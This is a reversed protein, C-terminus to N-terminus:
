KTKKYKKKQKLIENALVERQKRLIDPSKTWNQLNKAVPSILEAIRSEINKENNQKMLKRLLNFYEVDENGDRILELRISSVPGNIGVKNGPYTLFGDGNANPFMEAKEWVTIANQYKGNRYESYVNVCWYLVGEINHKAQLWSLVRHSIGVDDILYTPYPAQPNVCTYWWIRDGAKIREEYVDWDIKDLLPVWIDVAGYMSKHPEITMLFPIDKGIKDTTLGLDRVFDYKNPTPEDNCYIYGKRMWGKKRLHEAIIKLKPSDIRGWPNPIRFSNVRPDDLYKNAEHSTIEVPINGPMLRREVMFWYYKEYMAKAEPSNPKLNFAKNLFNPWIAFASMFSPTEPLEFDYINLEIDIETKEINDGTIAITGNYKGPVSDKNSTVQLWIAQTADVPIDFKKQLPPLADPMLGPATDKAVTNKAVLTYHVQLLQSKLDDRGGYANRFGSFKVSINNIAKDQATILIQTAETENKAMSISARQKKASFSLPAKQYRRIKNMPSSIWVVPEEIKDSKNIQLELINSDESTLNIDTIINVFYYCRKWDRPISKDIYVNDRTSALFTQSSALIDPYRSRFIQYKINKINQKDWTLIVDSNEKVRARLKSPKSPMTPKAGFYPNAIYGKGTSSNGYLEFRIEVFHTSSNIKIIKSFQKWDKSNVDVKPTQGIYKGHIDYIYGLIKGKGKATASLLLESNPKVAVRQAIAVIHSKGDAVKNIVVCNKNDVRSFSISSAGTIEKKWFLDNSFASNMLLNDRTNSDKAFQISDIYAKGHSNKGYIEFRIEIFYTLNNTQTSIATQKWKKNNVSMKPTQGIYKGNIDYIYGFVVGKGKTTASLIYRTNPSVTIKQAIAAVSSTGDNKKDLLVIKKGSPANNDTIVEVKSLGNCNSKWFKPFANNDVNEFSNNLLLNSAYALNTFLISVTFFIIKM